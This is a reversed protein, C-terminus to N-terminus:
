EADEQPAEIYGMKRLYVIWPFPTGPDLLAVRDRTFVLGGETILAPSAVDMEEEGRRLLGAMAFCSSKAQRVRLQFRWPEGDDWALPTWENGYVDTQLICRG